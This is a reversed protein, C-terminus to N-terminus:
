DDRFTHYQKELQKTFPKFSDFYKDFNQKWNEESKAIPIWNKFLGASDDIDLIDQITHAIANRLAQEPHCARRPTISKHIWAGFRKKPLTTDITQVTKRIFQWIRRNIFAQLLLINLFQKRIM